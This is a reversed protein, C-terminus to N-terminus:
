SFCSRGVISDIWARARSVRAFVSPTGDVSCGDVLNTKVYAMSDTWSVLGILVDDGSPSEKVLPGGADGYCPGENLVGGACVMTDDVNGLMTSCEKNEWLEMDVRKLENSNTGNETTSGWGMVTASEGAKIDSDDAAALQVTQVLQGKGTGSGHLREHLRCRLVVLLEPPEHHVRYPDAACHSACLVHKPSILAGGCWNIGNVESRLGVTYTKTGSLVVGGGLILKREAFGHDGVSNLGYANTRADVASMLGILTTFTIGVIQMSFESGITFLLKQNIAFSSIICSALPLSSGLSPFFIIWHGLPTDALESCSAGQASGNQLEDLTVLTSRLRGNISQSYGRIIRSCFEKLVTDNLASSSRGTLDRTKASSFVAGILTSSREDSGVVDESRRAALQTVNTPGGHTSVVPVASLVAFADLNHGHHRVWVIGEADSLARPAQQRQRNRDSLPPTPWDERSPM